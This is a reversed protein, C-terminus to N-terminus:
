VREAGRGNTEHGRRASKPLAVGATLTFRLADEMSMSVPRVLSRPVLVTYGGIMYSMPLYVLV